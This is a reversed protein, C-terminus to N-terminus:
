QIIMIEIYIQVKQHFYKALFAMTIDKENNYECNEVVINQAWM